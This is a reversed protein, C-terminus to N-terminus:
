GPGWLGKNDRECLGALEKIGRCSGEKVGGERSRGRLRIWCIGGGVEADFILLNRYSQVNRLAVKVTLM